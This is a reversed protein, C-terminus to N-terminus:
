KKKRTPTRKRSAKYEWDPIYQAYVEELYQYAGEDIVVIIVDPHYKAMRKLKTKSRTDMWGKVEHYEVRDDHFLVKFDPLYSRCGRKIKDFWFTEPEHLWEKIKGQSKLYELYRAYNAEWRSRYFKKIGGITRWGAKWKVDM